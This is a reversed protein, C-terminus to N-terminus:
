IAVQQHHRVELPSGPIRGFSSVLLHAAERVYDYHNATQSFESVRLRVKARPVKTIDSFESKM